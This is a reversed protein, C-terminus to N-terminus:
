SEQGEAMEPIIKSVPILSTLYSDQFYKLM